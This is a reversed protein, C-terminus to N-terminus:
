KRAEAVLKADCESKRKETYEDFDRTESDDAALSFQKEFGNMDVEPYMLIKTVPITFISRNPQHLYGGGMTRSPVVEGESNRRFVPPNVVVEIHKTDKPLEKLIHKIDRLSHVEKTVGNVRIERVISLVSPFSSLSLNTQASPRLGSIWVRKETDGFSRFVTEDDHEVLILGSLLVLDLRARLQRYNINKSPVEVTIAEQNNRILEVKLPEKAYFSERRLVYSSDGVEKGNVRFIQDGTQLKSSPHADEVLLAGQNRRFYGPAAKEILTKAKKKDLEEPKVTSTLALLAKHQSLTHDKEWAEYEELVNAIPISFGMNDADTNKASNIGIVIGNPTILPGGSNGPNIPTQTLIMPGDSGVEQIGTIQGFTTINIGGLPNGLAITHQGQLSRANKVFQYFKSDKQPFIGPQLQQQLEASLEALEFKLVAFDHLNSEYVLEAKTQERTNEPGSFDLTLNRKTYPIEAVVHKNTFVIGYVKQTKPDIQFKYIFGTGTGASLRESGFLSINSCGIQMVFRASFEGIDMPHAVVEAEQPASAKASGLIANLSSQPLSNFGQAKAFSAVFLFTLMAILLFVQKKM